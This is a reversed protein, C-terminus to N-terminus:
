SFGRCHWARGGTRLRIPSICDCLYFFFGAGLEEYVARCLPLYEQRVVELVLVVDEDGVQAIRLEGSDM